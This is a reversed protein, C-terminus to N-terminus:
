LAKKLKVYKGCKLFKMLLESLRGEMKLHVTNNMYAQMSAGPIDVIAIDREEIPDFKCSLLL